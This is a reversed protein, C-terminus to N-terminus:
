FTPFGFRDLLQPRRQWDAEVRVKLQLHVRTAFLGELELRAEMGAKGLMEGRHGIVIGKQSDREVLV